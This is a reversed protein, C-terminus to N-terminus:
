RKRRGPPPCDKTVVGGDKMHFELVNRAPVNIFDVKELFVDGDFSSLGLVEASVRELTDHDLMGTAPCRGGKKKKTGCIWYNMIRKAKRRSHQYNQGCYPCKIKGTFCCTNLSKNALPGLEMRQAIETQVHDFTAKDIIAPHTNEVYYQPSDIVAVIEKPCNKKKKSM